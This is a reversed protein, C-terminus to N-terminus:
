VILVPLRLIDNVGSICLSQISLSLGLTPFHSTVLDYQLTTPPDLTQALEGDAWSTYM